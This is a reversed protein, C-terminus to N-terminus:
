IEGYNEADLDIVGYNISHLEIDKYNKIGLLGTLNAEPSGM